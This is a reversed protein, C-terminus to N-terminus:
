TNNKEEKNEVGPLRSIEPKRMEKFLSFPMQFCEIQKMQKCYNHDRQSLPSIPLCM